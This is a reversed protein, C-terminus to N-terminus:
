RRTATILWAASVYAVAQDTHHAELTARLADFARVDHVPGHPGMASSCTVFRAAVRCGRQEVLHGGACHCEQGWLVKDTFHGVPQALSDCLFNERALVPHYATFM